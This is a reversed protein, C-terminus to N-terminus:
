LCCRRRSGGLVEPNDCTKESKKFEQVDL